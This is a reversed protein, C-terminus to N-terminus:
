AMKTEGVLEKAVERLDSLLKQKDTEKLYKRKLEEEGVHESLEKLIAAAKKFEGYAGEINRGALFTKGLQHHIQWLTEGYRLKRALGLATELENRASNLNGGALKARGSILHFAPQLLAYRQLGLNRAKDLFGRCQDISGRRLHVEAYELTLQLIEEGVNLKEAIVFAKDLLGLAHQFRKEKRELASRVQYVGIESKGDGIARIISAAEELIGESNRWDNMVAFFRGLAIRVLVQLERDEIKEAVEKAEKLYAFSKGYEGQEFHANGLDKLVRGVRGPFDIERALELGREGYQLAAPYDGIKRYAESLNELNFAVEKENKIEENIKFSELFHDICRRYEGLEFLTAGINNLSRAMWEKDGLERYVSSAQTFYELAQSYDHRSWHVLGMNNLTNGVYFQNGLKRDIELAVQFSELANQYQSDTWYVLGLYSLTHALKLPDNLKKHIPMAKELYYIGKKYDHKLRYTEGLGNYTQVLLELDPSSGALELIALYDREAQNLEGVMRCFEARNMLAAVQKELAQNPESLKSAVGIADGLYKLVEDNAFRAKMEEASLLAYQYAKRRDKGNLYHFAIDFVALKERGSSLTELLAGVKRHLGARKADDLRRYLLGQLSQNAFEFYTKAGGSDEQRVLLQDQSLLSLADLMTKEDGLSLEKLLRPTIKKAIVALIELFAITKEDYRKLNNLLVAEISDPIASEKQKEVDVAWVSDKLAVVGNELLYKLVEIIFFPNGSTREYVYALFESPFNSNVFKSSILERTGTLDFRNLRLNEADEQERCNELLDRLSTKGAANDRLTVCLLIRGKDELSQYHRVFQLTSVDAWQLNELVLVLPFSQGIEVMFGSLKQHFSAQAEPLDSTESGSWKFIDKFDAVVSDTCRNEVYPELKRLLDLLPQYAVTQNELCYSDVFIVDELQCRTKLNKLLRTKGAGQEGSVALFCGRFDIARRLHSELQSSESERGILPGSHLHFFATNDVCSDPGGGKDMDRRLGAKAIEKVEAASAPRHHPSKEMLRLILQNLSAPLHPNLQSPPVPIEQLHASIIKLPDDSWFPLRSTVLEYLIIGLSYLDTRGDLPEERFVEPAMYPLTGKTRKDGRSGIHQYLGFDLITPRFHRDTVKLNDPKLDCHVLGRLHLFELIDCIQWILHYLRGFDAPAQAPELLHSFSERLSKGDVFEMTFYPLTGGRRSGDHSYGFDLVEVVGPHKLEALLSFEDKFEQLLSCDEADVVLLKLAVDKGIWRDHARYVKGTGGEGLHHLITYRYSFTQPIQKQSM